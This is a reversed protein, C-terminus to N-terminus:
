TNIWNTLLKNGINSNVSEPHFQIGYLKLCRHYISMISGGENVSGLILDDPLTDQKVVWSNYLGVMPQPIKEDVIGSLLPDSNIITLVSKHGHLPHDLKELKAGFFEAIAQHGLCIGLISHSEKYLSIVNLLDGAESPLGPGPSLLIHSYSDLESYPICDNYVIDIEVESLSKLLHIINYVFSDYNDIVLIKKM